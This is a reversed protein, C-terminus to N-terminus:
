DDKIRDILEERSVVATGPKEVVIGAAYNALHVAEILNLGSIMGLTIAACFTDGAGTVDSVEKVKTCIENFENGDYCITEHKGCTIVVYKSRTSDFLEKAISKNDSVKDGIIERAEKINPRILTAGRFSDANAPKPDVGVFIGKSNALEILIEGFGARFVRKNYDSLILANIKVDRLFEYIERKCHESIARLNSEGYDARLIYHNFDSDMYREKVISWGDRIFFSNITNEGCLDQIKSGYDDNGIVGSLKTDAGLSSLNAAVNAACGLRFEISDVKLLPAGHMEPNVREIKGYVYKDLAIDGIVAVTNDNFLEVARILKTKDM